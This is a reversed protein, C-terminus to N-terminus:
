MGEHKIETLGEETVHFSGDRGLGSQGCRKPGM